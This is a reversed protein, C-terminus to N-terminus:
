YSSKHAATPGLRAVVECPIKAAAEIAPVKIDIVDYLMVAM